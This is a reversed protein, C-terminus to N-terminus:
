ANKNCRLLLHEGGVFALFVNRVGHRTHAFAESDVRWVSATGVYKANLPGHSVVLKQVGGPDDDGRCSGKLRKPCVGFQACTDFHIAERHVNESVLMPNGRGNPKKFIHKEGEGNEM